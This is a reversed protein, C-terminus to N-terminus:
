DRQEKEAKRLKDWYETGGAGVTEVVELGKACTDNEIDAVGNEM